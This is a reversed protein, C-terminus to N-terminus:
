FTWTGTVSIGGGGLAGATPEVCTVLTRPLTNPPTSWEAKLAIGTILKTWDPAAAGAGLQGVAEGVAATLANQIVVAMGQSAAQMFAKAADEATGGLAGGALDSVDIGDIKAM